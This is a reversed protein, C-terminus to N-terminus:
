FYKSIMTINSFILFMKMSFYINEYPNQLGDNNINVVDVAILNREFFSTFDLETKIIIFVIICIEFVCICIREIDVSKISKGMPLRMFESHTM